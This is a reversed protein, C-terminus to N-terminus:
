RTEKAKLPKLTALLAINKSLWGSQHKQLTNSTISQGDYAAIKSPQWGDTWGHLTQLIDNLDLYLHKHNHHHLQFLQTSWFTHNSTHPLIVFLMLPIERFSFGGGLCVFRIQLITNTLSGQTLVYWQLATTLNSLHEQINRNLTNQIKESLSPEPTASTLHPSAVSHSLGSPTELQLWWPCCSKRCNRWPSRSGSCLQMPSLSMLPFPFSLAPLQLKHFTLKLLPHFQWILKLRFWNPLFPVSITLNSQFRSLVPNESGLGIM